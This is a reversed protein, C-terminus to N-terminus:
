NQIRAARAESLLRNARLAIELRQACVLGVALLLFADTIDTVTVHLASANEAALGRLGFRIAFIALLLLMGFASTKSTLAHTAPDVSILTFRGRWWGLAAGLGIALIDVGIMLTGPPRQHSFALVTAVLILAPAVWLREIRLNRARSSRLIALGIFLLPLLYPLANAGQPVQNPM